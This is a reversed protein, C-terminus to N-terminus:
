LNTAMLEGSGEINGKFLVVTKLYYKGWQGLSIEFERWHRSIGLKGVEGKM